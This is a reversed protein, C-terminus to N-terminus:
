SGAIRESALAYPTVASSLILPAPVTIQIQTSGLGTLESLLASMMLASLPDYVNIEVVHLIGSGIEM